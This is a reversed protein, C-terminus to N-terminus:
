VTRDLSALDSDFYVEMLTLGQPPAAAGAAQRNKATLVEAVWQPSQHGVGVQILTGVINRVMNYLFGNAQVHFTLLRGDLHAQGDITLHQITRVTSSRPSGSSQFSYFDHTGVLLKTAEQMAELSVRQRVWWHSKSGLPDGFRSNYVQYRYRKGSNGRLPHLKLSVERAARVVISGPLHINLAFPLRDAAARWGTTRVIVAQGVAHVGTDTRSSALARVPQGLVAELATELTKQVSPLGPQYQWGCYPAGDYAVTLLFARQPWNRGGAGSEVQPEDTM